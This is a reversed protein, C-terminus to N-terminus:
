QGVLVPPLKDQPRQLCAGIGAQGLLRVRPSRCMAPRTRTSPCRQSVCPCWSPSRSFNEPLFLRCPM